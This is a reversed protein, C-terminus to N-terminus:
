GADLSLSEEETLAAEETQELFLSYVLFLIVGVVLCSDAVNWIPWTATGFREILWPAISPHDTYNRVFDTVYGLRFRDINNGFACAMILGLAVTAVTEGDKLKYLVWAVVGVSMLASAAFVVMRYEFEDMMSFASGTNQAHLLSLWGPILQIQEGVRMNEVVWWKTAQDLVLFGIFVGFFLAYKRSM